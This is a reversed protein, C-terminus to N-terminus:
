DEKRRVQVVGIVKGQSNKMPVAHILQHDHCQVIKSAEEQNHLCSTVPCTSCLGDHPQEWLQACSLGLMEEENKSVSEQAAKNSWQSLGKLDFFVIEETIHDLISTKLAEESCALELAQKVETIEDFTVVTGLIRNDSTRYPMIRCVFWRGKEGQVERSSPHLTEIVDEIDRILDPNDFKPAIDSIPRGIDTTILNFLKKSAPTFFNINMRSDLFISANKTSNMLNTLDNNATELTNIKEQLENNVTNLEENLSQLEEKSTELEESSSQLEENMSMVEENSAKLEENSAELEEITNQLDEKTANLEYELQKVIPEDDSSVELGIATPHLKKSDEFSILLIGDGGEFGSLPKVTFTVGSFRGSRKVRAGQVNMVTNERISKHVAGRVRTVLGERLLSFLDDTTEGTPYRLCDVTDGFHYLIQHKRNVLVSAPVYEALLAQRALDHIQVSPRKLGAEAETIRDWIHKSPVIPFSVKPKHSSNIKKFIRWKKSITDFLDIQQGITESNGLMLNGDAKLAFHFLDIIKSQV